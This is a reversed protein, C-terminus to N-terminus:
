SFESDSELVQESGGCLMCCLYRGAAMIRRGSLPHKIFLTKSGRADYVSVSYVKKPILFFLNVPNASKKTKRAVLRVTKIKM